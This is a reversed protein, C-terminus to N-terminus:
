APVDDLFDRIESPTYPKEILPIADFDDPMHKRGYASFFAFHVQKRLLLGALGRSDQQPGLNFDVIAADPLESECATMASAETAFPGMLDHGMDSVTYALDVQLIPDDELILVKM